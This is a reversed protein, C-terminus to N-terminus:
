IKTIKVKMKWFFSSVETRFPEETGLPLFQSKSVRVYKSNCFLAIFLASETLKMTLM